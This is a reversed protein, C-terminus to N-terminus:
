LTDFTELKLEVAKATELIQLVRPLIQSKVVQYELQSFINRIKTLALIQLKPVGCALSKAILPLFVKGFEEQSVYNLILEQNKLLLYL